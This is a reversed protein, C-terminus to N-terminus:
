VFAVPCEALCSGIPFIPSWHRTRKRSMSCSNTSYFFKLWKETRSGMTLVINQSPPDGTSFSIEVDDGPGVEVPAKRLAVAIEDDVVGVWTKRSKVLWRSLGPGRSSDAGAAGVEALLAALAGLRLSKDVCRGVKRHRPQPGDHTCALPM